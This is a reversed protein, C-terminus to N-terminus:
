LLALLAYSECDPKFRSRYAALGNLAAAVKKDHPTVLEHRLVPKAFMRAKVAGANLGLM